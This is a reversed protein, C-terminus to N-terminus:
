DIRPSSILFFFISLSFDIEKKFLLSLSTFSFVVSILILWGKFYLPM